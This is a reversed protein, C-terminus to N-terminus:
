SLSVGSQRGYLRWGENARTWYGDSGRTVIFPLVTEDVFTVDTPLTTPPAASTVFQVDRKPQRTPVAPRTPRSSPSRSASYSTPRTHAPPAASALPLLPLVALPLLRRRRQPRIQPMGAGFGGPSIEEMGSRGDHSWTSTGSPSPHNTSAISNRRFRSRSLRRQLSTTSSLSGDDMELEVEEGCDECITRNVSRDAREAMCARLAYDSPGAEAEEGVFLGTGAGWDPRAYNRLIDSEM